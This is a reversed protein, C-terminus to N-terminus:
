ILSITRCIMSQWAIGGRCKPWSLLASAAESAGFDVEAAGGIPLEVRSLAFPRFDEQTAAAGIEGRV